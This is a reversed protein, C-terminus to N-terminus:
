PGDFDSNGSDKIGALAKNLQNVLKDNTAVEIMQRRKDPLQDLVDKKLRRIMFMKQLVYHLEATCTSGNLDIGYQTPTPNCYRKTFNSFSPM